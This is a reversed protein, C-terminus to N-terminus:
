VVSKRDLVEMVRIKAQDFQQRDISIKLVEQDDHRGIYTLKKLQAIKEFLVIATSTFANVAARFTLKPVYDGSGDIKVYPLTVELSLAEPDALIRPQIEKKTYQPMKGLAKKAWKLLPLKQRNEFEPKKGPASRAARGLWRDSEAKAQAESGYIRLEFSDAKGNRFGERGEIQRVYAHLLRDLEDRDFDPDVVGVVTIKGGTPPNLNTDKLIKVKAGVPARLDDFYLQDAGKKEAKECGGLLLGLLACVVITRM